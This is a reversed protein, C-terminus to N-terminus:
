MRSEDTHTSTQLIATILDAADAIDAEDNIPLWRSWTLQCHDGSKSRSVILPDGHSDGTLVVELEQSEDKCTLVSVKLRACQALEVALGRMQRGALYEHPALARGLEDVKERVEAPPGTLTTKTVSEM